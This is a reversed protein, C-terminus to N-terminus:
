STHSVDALKQLVARASGDDLAQAAMHVGAALDEVTGAVLLAAAANILVMSRAPGTETGNLINVVLETAAELGSATVSEIPHIQLGVDKPEVRETRVQGDEVHWLTTPASISIEDLGDDSHAVIARISGLQVLADAMLPGFQADWVGLLQRQAGAPNTLPGLLNFITPFRLAKRVPVVFRTAPHHRIAFAFCTGAQELCRAQIEPSADLNVGLSELVEASGRGTRSRNGHKAVPTGCAAGVIAAVTSVNFTKPAGGTGATDLIDSPDLATPIPTVHKRMIETAGVLEDVSPGRRAILALVASIKSEEVLGSMMSEFAIRTTDRSLSDGALLTQFVPDWNLENPSMNM